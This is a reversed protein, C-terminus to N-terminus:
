AARSYEHIVGGLRDRREIRGTPLPVVNAPEYPRRQDIGRHPRARNYHDIFEALVNELHRRGFILLRWLQRTLVRSIAALVLRDTPQWRPRHTQRELVRLQHRLALVEARLRANLQPANPTWVARHPSSHSGGGIM